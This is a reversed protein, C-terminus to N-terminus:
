HIWYSVYLMHNKGWQSSLCNWLCVEQIHMEGTLWKIYNADAVSLELFSLSYLSSLWLALKLVHPPKRRMVSAKMAPVLCSLFLNQYNSLKFSFFYWAYWLIYKQCYIIGLCPSLLKKKKRLGCFYPNYLTYCPSCFGVCFLPFKDWGSLIRIQLVMNVGHVIGSTVRQNTNLM